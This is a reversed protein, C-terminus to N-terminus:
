LKLTIDFSHTLNADVESKETLNNLRQTISPNYIGAMGGEIQDARIEKKIRSCVPSFEAYSNDRNSFYDKLEVPGGMDHVYNEFGEMTLPRERERHVAIGDKGVFDHVLIPNAKIAKVYDKFWKLLQEPSEVMKYRGGPM